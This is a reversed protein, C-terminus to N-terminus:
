GVLRGRVRAALEDFRPAGSEYLAKAAGGTEHVFRQTDEDEDAAMGALNIGVNLYAGELGARAMLAAVGADSLSNPNGREIIAEILAPMDESISRLLAFPVRTAGKNAETIAMDRAMREADSGKPLRFAAMVENFAETDSDIVDRYYDKLRQARVAVENMEAKVSKFGKKGHTLSPVMATLAASLAAALAAVSGGGPAASDSALEDLFGGVSLAALPRPRQVRKEIIKQGPEFDGLERLGLSRIATKIVEDESLGVFGKQKNLYHRGAALMAEIPVLGVIESGTVRLGDETALECVKDFVEHVSSEKFNTLNMTVQALGHEELFWGTAKCHKFFGPQKIPVGEADRVFKGKADRKNSGQERIALALKRAAKVSRTNLNINYAVLFERAGIATAGARPNFRAPGFDPAWHADQLKTALAEYEGARVEALNRREPCRAASEYLYVPIELEEGVRRGLAEALAACDEMTTGSLPVFPCVDTAGMRPHAGQHQRMDILESARKIVQFAAEVAAEPRGVFTFVTRNTDAGPDVDLLEVGDVARIVEAIAALTAKNSGESVNPVCEVLKM